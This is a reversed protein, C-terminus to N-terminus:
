HLHPSVFFYLVARATPVNSKRVALSWHKTILGQLLFGMNWTRAILLNDELRTKQITNVFLGTTWIGEARIRKEMYERWEAYLFECDLKASGSLVNINVVFAARERCLLLPKIVPISSTFRTNACDYCKEQRTYNV